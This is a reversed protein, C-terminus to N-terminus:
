ASQLTCLIFFDSFTSAYLSKLTVYPKDERVMNNIAEGVM